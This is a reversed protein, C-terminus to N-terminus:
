ETLLLKKAVDPKVNMLLDIISMNEIFGEGEQQYGPCKWDQVEMKVGAGEFAKKDMYKDYAIKGCLYVDAELYKCINLMWESGKAKLTGPLQCSSQVAGQYNLNDLIDRISWVALHAFNSVGRRICKEFFSFAWEFNDAKAYCHQLTEIHVDRWKISEDIYSNCILRRDGEHKVPITLKIIGGNPNRIQARGMIGKRVYQANDLVVFVDSSLVRNWYHLPPFYLPQYVCVKM